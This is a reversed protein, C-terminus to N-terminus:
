YNSNTKFRVLNFEIVIAEDLVQPNDFVKMDMINIIYLM